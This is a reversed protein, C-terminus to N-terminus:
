SMGASDKDDAFAKELDEVNKLGRDRFRSDKTGAITESDPWSEEVIFQCLAEGTAACREELVKHPTGFVRDAIGKLIGELFGCQPTSALEEKECFVCNAVAVTFRSGYRIDGTM